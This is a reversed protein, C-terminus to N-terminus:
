VDADSHPVILGVNVEQQLCWGGGGGVGVSIM